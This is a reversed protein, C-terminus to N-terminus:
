KMKVVRVQEKGAPTQAQIIYLGAALPRGSRGHGDWALERTAGAEVAEDLLLRVQRGTADFVAVRAYGTRVPQLRFTVQSQFLNPSTFMLVPGSKTVREEAVAADRMCIYVRTVETFEGKDDFVIEGRDDFVIYSFFDETFNSGDHRYTVAGTQPDIHEIAGHAPGQVIELSGPVLHGDLPFDNALVDIEVFGGAEVEVRDDNGVPAASAFVRDLADLDDPVGYPSRTGGRATDLGLSEGPILICPGPELVDAETIPLGSIRCPTGLSHSGRRLSFLIKDTAQDYVGDGDDWIALADIDDEGEPGSSLGLDAASVYVRFTDVGSSLDIVLIDAASVDNVVATGANPPASSTEAWDAFDADLSFYVCGQLDSVHTNLDLADLNDGDDDPDQFTPSSPERLGLGPHGTPVAGDGDIAPQNGPRFWLGTRTVPGLYAFVDAAAEQNGLAGESCVSIAPGVPLGVAFEDVSFRLRSGRDNGFSLADVERIGMMGVVDIGLDEPELMVGPAYTLGVVPGNPGPSGPVAVTLIDGEDIDGPGWTAPLGRSDGQYDISFTVGPANGALIVRMQDSHGSLYLDLELINGYPHIEDPYTWAGDEVELGRRAEGVPYEVSGLAVEDDWEDLTTSELVIGLIDSSFEITGILHSPGGASARNAHIMVVSVWEGATVTGPTLPYNYKGDATVDVDMDITLSYDEKELFVRITDDSTYAGEVLSGVAIVDGRTVPYIDGNTSNIQARASAALCLLGLALALAVRGRNAEHTRQTKM